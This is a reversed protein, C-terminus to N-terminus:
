RCTCGSARVPAAVDAIRPVDGLRDTLLRAERRTCTSTTSRSRTSASRPSCGGTSARRPDSRGAARGDRWFISGGSYGREVQGMVPHVDVNDWHDLMRLDHAPSHREPAIDAGFAAEGLRVVHFLGYLLGPGAGGVVATVGDRRALVYGEAGIPETALAEAVALPVAGDWRGLAGVECLVVDASGDPGTVLAGGHAAVARTVEGRVTEALLGDGVLRVRRAGLPAFVADPLWAPHVDGGGVPLGDM